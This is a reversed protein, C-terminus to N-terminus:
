LKPLRFNKRFSKRTLRQRTSVDDTDILKLRVIKMHVALGPNVNNFVIHWTSLIACALAMGGADIVTADIAFIM